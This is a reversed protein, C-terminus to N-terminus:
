KIAEIYFLRGVFDKTVQPYLYFGAKMLEAGSAEFAQFGPEVGSNNSNSDDCGSETLAMAEAEPGGEEKALTVGWAGEGLEQTM